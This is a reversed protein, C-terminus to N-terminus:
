FNIAVSLKISRGLISRGLFVDGNAPAGGDGETLGITNFLNAADLGFRLDNVAYSAGANVVGFAPLEFTNEIDHYKKGFYSYKAYM